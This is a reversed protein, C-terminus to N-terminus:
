GQLSSSIEELMAVFVGAEFFDVMGSGQVPEPM